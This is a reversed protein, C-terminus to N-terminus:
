HEELLVEKGGRRSNNDLYIDTGTFKPRGSTEISGDVKLNGKHYANGSSDFQHQKVGEGGCGTTGCSNGWIQLSENSNDNITLRLHNSDKNGIKEFYYPDNDNGSFVLRKGKEVEVNKGSTGGISSGDKLKFKTATITGDALVDGNVHM